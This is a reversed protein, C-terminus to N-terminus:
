RLEEGEEKAKMIVTRVGEKEAILKPYSITSTEEM